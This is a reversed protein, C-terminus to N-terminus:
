RCQFGAVLGIPQGLALTATAPLQQKVALRGLAPSIVAFLRDSRAPLDLVAGQGPRASTGSVDDGDVLVLVEFEREFVLDGLAAVAPDHEVDGLFQSCGPLRTGLDLDLVVDVAM